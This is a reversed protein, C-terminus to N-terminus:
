LVKFEIHVFNFRHDIEEKGWVHVCLENSRMNGTNTLPVVIWGGVQTLQVASTIRSMGREM